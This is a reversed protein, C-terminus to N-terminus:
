EADGHDPQGLLAAVEAGREELFARRERKGARDWADLLRLLKQDKDSVPAPAEGRAARYAKRAASVKKAEGSVLAKVVYEREEVEGLKGIEM